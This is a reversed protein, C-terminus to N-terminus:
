SVERLMQLCGAAVWDLWTPAALRDTIDTDLWRKLQRYYEVPKICDYMCYTVDDHDAEEPREPHTYTNEPDLEAIDNCFMSHRVLWCLASIFMPRREAPVHDLLVARISRMKDTMGQLSQKKAYFVFDADISEGNMLISYLKNIM